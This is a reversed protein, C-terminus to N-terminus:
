NITKNNKVFEKLLNMCRTGAEDKGLGIFWKSRHSSLYIFGYVEVGSDGMVKGMESEEWSWIESLDSWKAAAVGSEKKDYIIGWFLFRTTICIVTYNTETRGLFGKKLNTTEYCHLVENEIGGLKYDEMYKKVYQIFKPRLDPFRCEATSRTYDSKKM